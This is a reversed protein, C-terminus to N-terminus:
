IGVDTVTVDHRDDAMKGGGGYTKIKAVTATAFPVHNCDPCCKRDGYVHSPAGDDAGCESCKGTALTVRDGACLPRDIFGGNCHCEPERCRDLVTPLPGDIRITFRTGMDGTLPNYPADVILTPLDNPICDPCSGLDVLETPSDETTSQWVGTNGCTECEM